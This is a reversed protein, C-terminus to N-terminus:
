IGTLADLLTHISNVTQSSASGRSPVHARV